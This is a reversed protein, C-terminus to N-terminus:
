SNALTAVFSATLERSYLQFQDMLGYYQDMVINGASCWNIGDRSSGLAITVPTNAATFGYAGSSAGFQTGNIYLRLGNTPSYTVAVHTWVNTVISPGNINVQGANWSQTSITGTSTFGLMPICWGNAGTPSASVHLITGRTVVTPRIFLAFSYPQSSTGFLVLGSAQVYSQNVTFSLSMNSRGTNSFLTNVGTGNILLPGSDQLNGDFNWAVALTAERLVESASSIGILM